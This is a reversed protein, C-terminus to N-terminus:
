CIVSEPLDADCYEEWLQMLSTDRKWTHGHKTELEILEKFQEPYRKMNEVAHRDPMFMCAYCSCRSVFEYCPHPDLKLEKSWEFMKGKEFDLVPKHWHCTFKAVRETKLHTPHLITEEMKARRPSEDRREGTLFLCSEGLIHRNARIWKCTCDTKLYSTCWRNKQDPWMGRADLIDKFLMKHQVLVPKIGLFSAINYFIDKNEPYELGTDCYLLYIKEKPFHDTAWKLTGASDIGTSFSVIVSKYNNLLEVKNPKEFLTQQKILRM